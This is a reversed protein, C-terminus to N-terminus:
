HGEIKEKYEDEDLKVRDEPLIPRHCLGEVVELVRTAGRSIVTGSPLEEVGGVVDSFKLWWM